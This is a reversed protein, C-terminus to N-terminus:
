TLTKSRASLSVRTTRPRDEVVVDGGRGDRRNFGGWSGWFAMSLLAGAVGVFMLINGIMHIDIGSNNNQIDIAFRMIAGVAFLFLSAGIGM